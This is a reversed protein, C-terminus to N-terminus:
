TSVAAEVSAQRDPPPQAFSKVLYDEAILASCCAFLPILEGFLRVEVILGYFFVFALWLPLATLWLQLETSRIRRRFLLILPLTYGAVSALQPWVLPFMVTALNTVLRDELETPRGAFHRSVWVHWGLWFLGLPIVTVLVRPRLAHRWNFRNDEICSSILFFYLLFVCTERNLTAVVFIAALLAPHLRRSIVLLGLSFLGLSPLDYVYRFFATSQLCYSCAILLLTLPYVFPALLRTRSNGIYLDRAVLGAIVVCIVNIIAQLMDEPTAARPLWTTTISFLQALRIFIPSSHAFRLPFQMLLRAQFPMREMGAEYRQLDLYSVLCYIYFWVLHLTALVNITIITWRVTSRNAQAHGQSPKM